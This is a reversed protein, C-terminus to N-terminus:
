NRRVVFSQTAAPGVDTARTITIEDGNLTGSWRTVVRTEGVTQATLFQLQNEVHSGDFISFETGEPEIVSGTIAGDTATLSLIVRHEGAEDQVTGSWGGAIPSQATVLASLCLSLVLARTLTNM